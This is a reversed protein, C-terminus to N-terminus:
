FDVDLSLKITTAPTDSNLGFLAGFGITTEVKRDDDDDKKKTADDDDTDGFTWYVIPGLRYQNFTGFIEEAEDTNGGSIREVGGYSEVALALENSTRYMLRAAYGFDLKGRDQYGGGFYQIATPNITASWRGSQWEVIPGITLTSAEDSHVSQDWEVLFGAGIGDGKRQIINWITEAGYGDFELPGMRGADNFTKPDDLRGQELEIGLRLKLFNTLGMEVEIGERQRTVTNDDAIIGGAGNSVVRRRPNGASFDNQSEFEIAGPVTELDKIEFQDLSPGAIAADAHSLLTVGVFLASLGALRPLM